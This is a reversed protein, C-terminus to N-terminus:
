QSLGYDVPIHTGFLLTAAIAHSALPDDISVGYYMQFNRTSTITIIATSGSGEDDPYSACAWAYSGGDQEFSGCAVAYETETHTESLLLFDDGYPDVDVRRNINTSRLWAPATEDDSTSEVTAFGYQASFSVISDSDYKQMFSGDTHMKVLMGYITTGKELQNLTQLLGPNSLDPYALFQMSCTTENKSASDFYAGNLFLSSENDWVFGHANLWDVMKVTDADLYGSINEFTDPPTGESKSQSTSALQAAYYQGLHSFGIGEGLAVAAALILVVVIVVSSGIHHELSNRHLTMSGIRSTREAGLFIDEHSVKNEDKRHVM